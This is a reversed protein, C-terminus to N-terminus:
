VEMEHNQPLPKGLKTQLERIRSSLSDIYIDKQSQQQMLDYIANIAAMVIIHENNLTKGSEVVERMKNDLIRGSKQLDHTKDEPCRVHWTKSLLQIAITHNDHSM